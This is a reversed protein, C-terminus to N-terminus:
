RAQTTQWREGTLPSAMPSAFTLRHGQDGSAVPAEMCVVGISRPRPEKLTVALRRVRGDPAISSAMLNTPSAAAAASVVEQPPPPPPSWAPGEGVRVPISDGVSEGVIGVGVRVAVFGLTVRETLMGLGVRVAEVFGEAGEPGAPVSLVGRGSGIPVCDAAAPWSGCDVAVAVTVAEV